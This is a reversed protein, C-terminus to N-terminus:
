DKLPSGLYNFLSKEGWEDWTVPSGPLGELCPLVAHKRLGELLKAIRHSIRHKFGAASGRMLPCATGGEHHELPSKPKATWFM